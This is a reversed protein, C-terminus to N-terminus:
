IPLSITFIAGGEPVNSASIKGGHAETLQRTIALGLGTGGRLRSRSRDARYFRKFINPLDKEPIGSGSDQIDIKLSHNVRSIRVIIKGHDPTYQLANSLLNHLIQEIRYPDAMINPYSDRTGDLVFEIQIDKRAAQPRFNEVIREFIQIINIKSFELQLKGSDALALTHLDNVLRTLLLNQEIIPSLNEITLPYVGDQIAELNARQIALPTRLEHAIDATMARRRQESQELSDAMNNFTNGLLALEDNGKVQVRKSLEGSGLSQAAFTLERVPRLLRYALFLAILLSLGGAILGAILAARNLRNVLFVEDALTFETVGEQLFYGVLEGDVELPLAAEMEYKSLKEGIEFGETDAVLLGSPEALRIRTELGAALNLGNGESGVRGQGRGKGHTSLVTEVGDWSGKAQYYDDLQDIIGGQSFMGGKFVFSRVENVAGQRALLVVSLVAIFAVVAFSLILRLRM